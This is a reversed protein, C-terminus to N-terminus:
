PRLQWRSRIFWRTTAPPTVLRCTFREMDGAATRTEISVAAPMWAAGDTSAEIGFTADDAALSRSIEIIWDGGAERRIVPLRDVGPQSPLSGTAYELLPPLGDADTDEVDSVVGNTTKWAAYGVGDTGLPTPAANRSARWNLPQAPDSGPSVLVLSRGSGDAEQPWLGSTGYTFSLIVQGAASELTVLEGSNALRDNLYEGAIATFPIDPYRVAFAARRSVVITRGGAALVSGLPFTFDVGATFRAGSLDVPAASINLLEIFEFDDAETFGAFRESPTPDAPHYHLEAIAISAASAPTGSFYYGTSPASWLSGNRARATLLTSATVTVSSGSTLTLAAPNVAGGPLRPDSGDLTYHISGQAATLTVTATQGGAPSRVPRPVFQADLWATRQTLWLRMIDMEDSFTQTAGADPGDRPPTATWKAFNRVAAESIQTEFQSVLGTLNANTLIGDRLEFWRDTYRQWFDPDTWLFKWWGWTLIDTAPQAASWGTPSTSRSDTSGMTRDFDWIPGATLKGLRPKHMFTSLRFCDANAALINLLGHDVWSDRDIYDTYHLGTAPNIRNSQVVADEFAQVYNRIYASQAPPIIPNPAPLEEPYAYNLRVETGFPETLPFNRSTVWGSTGPDLRDVKVIYGGTLDDGALDNKDLREIPIRDAGREPKEMIAYVGMYDGPYDLTGDNTNAFVEVFRWRPAWRGIRNSIEYMFPNRIMGRDFDYNSQLIWDAEPAMGLPAVPTDENLEDWAEINMSYKPWGASSSGRVVMRGRTAISPANTLASRNSTAPNPEYLTWFMPTNANPKGSGFGDVVVVPLNSTFTAAASGLKIYTESRVLGPAFGPTSEFARARVMTTTTLTIPGTYLTAAATPETRNTTYRIQATPSATTLSVSVSAGAFAQSPISFVVDGAPTGPTTTNAAGPTPIQFPAYNGGAAPLTLGYSWYEPVTPYAPSFARVITAGDPQVLALYEGDAALRFNTHLEQGSVARNKNSAFVVLYGNAPIITPNPFRWRALRTATDTLFYGGIDIAAPAPNHLEIWDEPSGDADCFLRPDDNDTAAVFENLFVTVPTFTTTTLSASTPAWATGAANTARARFFFTSQASLNTVLSSFAATQLGVDVSWAWAAPNTAGDAPGYFITVETPASGTSVVNGGLRASFANIETAAANTVSPLSAVPTTFTATAPAWTSGGENVGLVRYHYLTGPQLGGVTVTATAAVAGLSLQQQWAAPNTGGDATGYFLTVVPARGGTSTVTVGTRATAITLDTAPLNDLAPPGAPTAFELAGAAWNEGAGNVARTTFFYRTFPELGTLNTTFSGTQPGLAVSQQWNAPTTGGNTTGYYLTVSPTSGGVRVINGGVTASTSTIATAATNAVLPANVNTERYFIMEQVGSNNAAGTTATADLRVYRANVASFTQTFGWVASGPSFTLTAVPSAFTPSDDDFILNFATTRDVTPIRDFFDFGNVPVIGGLDFDVFMGAGLSACAYELGGGRGADGNVANAAVYSANFPTASAYTTVPSVVASGVPANLFRLEAGGLNQSSGTSTAVEWRAYRATTQTFSRIPASLNSGAPGLTFITDAADFTADQSLILRYNGIIDAANGRTMLLIRDMTVPAGFDFHVWTGATTSLSAGAGRTQSAYDTANNNDFLNAATFSGSFPTASATITPAPLVAGRASTLAALLLGATRALSHFPHRM